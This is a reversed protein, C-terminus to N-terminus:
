SSVRRRRAPAGRFSRASVVDARGELRPLPWDDLKYGTPSAKDEVVRLNTLTQLKAMLEDHPLTHFPPQSLDPM